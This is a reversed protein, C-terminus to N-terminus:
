QPNTISRKRICRAFSRLITWWRRPTPCYNRSGHVVTVTSPSSSSLVTCDSLADPEVDDDYGSGMRISEPLDKDFWNAMTPKYDFTEMQPPAGLMHLYIARKAKPAFIRCDQSTRGVASTKKRKRM